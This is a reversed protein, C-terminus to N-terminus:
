DNNGRAKRTQREAKRQARKVMKIYPNKKVSATIPYVLSVGAKTPGVFNTSRFKVGPEKILDTYDSSPNYPRYWTKIFGLGINFEFRLKDNAVPMAHGKLRSDATWRTNENTFWYKVDAFLSLKEVCWRNRASVAWPYNYNIGISWHEQIPFELGISLGPMLLNTRAAMITKRYKMQPPEYALPQDPQREFHPIPAEVSQLSVMGSRDIPAPGVVFEDDANDVTM